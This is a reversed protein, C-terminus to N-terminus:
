GLTKRAMPPIDVVLIGHSAPPQEVEVRTMVGRTGELKSWTPLGLAGRHPLVPLWTEMRKEEMVPLPPVVLTVESRAEMMVM